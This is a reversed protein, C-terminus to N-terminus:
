ETVASGNKLKTADLIVNRRVAGIPGIEPVVIGDVLIKLAGANGTILTLGSRNPVQYRQGKKLLRTILLQNAVNDRVQIYSDTRAELVIRSPSPQPPQTQTLTKPSVKTVRKSKSSNIVNRIIETENNETIETKVENGSATEPKLKVSPKTSIIPTLKPKVKQPINSEPESKEEVPKQLRKPEPMNSEPALEVQDFKQKNSTTAEEELQGNVNKDNDTKDLKNDGEPAKIGIKTTTEEENNNRQLTIKEKKPSAPVVPKDDTLSTLSDPIKAVQNTTFINKNSFFYWSGYGVMAIMLGFLLIAAGPISNEPVYTPFILDPKTKGRDIDSKYREIIDESDLGLYTAYSRIFGSVYIDGPLINFQNNEIAELYVQRIRLSSSVVSLEENRNNRANQLLSGISDQNALGENGTVNINNKTDM